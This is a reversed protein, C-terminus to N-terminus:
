QLIIESDFKLRFKEFVEKFGSLNIDQHVKAPAKIDGRCQEPVSSWHRTNAGRFARAIEEADNNTHDIVYLFASALSIKGAPVFGNDDLFAWFRDGIECELGRLRMSFVLTGKVDDSLMQMEKTRAIAAVLKLSKKDLFAFSFLYIYHLLNSQVAALKNHQVIDHVIHNIIAHLEGVYDKSLEKSIFYKKWAFLQDIFEKAEACKEECTRASALLAKECLVTLIALPVFHNENYAMGSKEM